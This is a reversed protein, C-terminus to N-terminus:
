SIFYKKFRHGLRTIIEYGITDADRALDDITYCADTISAMKGAFVLDEPIDTVDCTVMDMSIAGVMPAAYRRGGSDEFWVKGKNKLHRPLGDGYGISLTAIKREGHTKHAAGYGVYQESSVANVKLVPAKIFVVPEMQNERYPATNIGFIAAGARVMDYHFTKDLFIGDSAALSLPARPLLDILAKFRNLQTHNM